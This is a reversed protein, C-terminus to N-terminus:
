QDGRRQLKNKFVLYLIVGALFFRLGVRSYFILPDSNQYYDVGQRSIVFGDILADIGTWAIVAAFAILFFKGILGLPKNNKDESNVASGTLNQPMGSLRIQRQEQISKTQLPNANQDIQQLAEDLEALTYNTYDTKANV